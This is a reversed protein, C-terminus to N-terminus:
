DYIKIIKNFMQSNENIKKSSGLVCIYNKDMSQQILNSFGRIDDVTTGLIENRETQLDENDINSIYTAAEKDCIMSNTLPADLDSITGIIYKTMEREDANFESLYKYFNNYAEVTEKINPDRYSSIFMIGSRRFAIFVGYAGGQVRVTNWLYDYNAINRLVQLKGTYKPILKLYNYGKAVYQVKSSTELAENDANLNFKYQNQKLIETNINETLIKNLDSEIGTYDEETCGIQIILNNINFVAKSIQMLKEAFEEKREEYNKELDSLFKYFNFGSTIETYKGIQSYYSSVLTSVIRHGNSILAMEIRSKYENIIEKMRAYNDFKSRNIIEFIMNFLINIKEHLVKGQVVLKPHYEDFAKYDNYVETSFEIGGTNKNIENSLKEYSYNETPIKGLVYSLVAIYPLDEQVIVKTDFYFNVYDIGNTPLKNYMIKYNAANSIETSYKKIEKDIDKLTLLPIKKIDEPNDPTAQRKILERTEEVLAEVASKELSNKLLKLSNKIEIQKEEAMNKKPKVILLLSHSNNLLYKEILEEFYNGKAKVKISELVDNFELHIFPEGGYLWSNLIKGAYALGKPYGSYDGEKLDFEHTNIVAEILNKDIGEKVLRKLESYVLKEFNDNDAENSSKLIISLSTYLISNNYMGFTDKGLQAEILAKRLPSAATELLIDELLDFALYHENNLVSGTAFSLSLYTKDKEDEEKGIPYYEKIKVNKSFTKQETVEINLERKEFNSLYDKDLYELVEFIDMDGYIYIYSNSPHYFKKHYEIFKDQTLNPIYDPNGGSDHGYCTDPLLNRTIGRMLISEPSSYVGQMENYVVGKYQLEEESNNIEYHWGEQKLIEPYKYINPYFVADMYVDMLNKFDQKNRSAIPYMTKDPYTAANLYTNLSGKALEVFPEKSPYKRSGCLVSHELIHFVGTSDEPLTKFSISFVKNDDTNFINVLKAGTKEHMFIRGVASIDKLEKEDILKFGYYVNNIKLEM